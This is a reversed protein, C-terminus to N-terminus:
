RDGGGQLFDDMDIPGIGDSSLNTTARAKPPAAPPAAPQRAFEPSSPAETGGHEDAMDPPRTERPAASGGGLVQRVKPERPKSQKSKRTPTWPRRTNGYPNASASRDGSKPGGFVSLLDIAEPESGSFAPTEADVDAVPTEERPVHRPGSFAPENSYRPEDRETELPPIFEPTVVEEEFGTEASAAPVDLPRRDRSRGDRGGRRRRGGRSRRDLDRDGEDGAAGEPAGASRLPRQVLDTRIVPPVMPARPLGLSEESGERRAVPERVSGSRERDRDRDRDRRDRGRGRDQDRDTERDSSKERDRDSIPPRGTVVVGLPRPEQPVSLSAPKRQEATRRGDAADDSPLPRVVFGDRDSRQGRQPAATDHGRREQDRPPRQGEQRDARAPQPHPRQSRRDMPQDPRNRGGRSRDGSVGAGRGRDRDRGRGGRIDRDRGGREGYPGRDFSRGVDRRGRSHAPIDLKRVVSPAHVAVGAAIALFAGRAVEVGYAGLPLHFAATAATLLGAAAAACGMLLAVPYVERKESRLWQLCLVHLALSGLAATGIVRVLPAFRDLPQDATGAFWQAIMDPKVLAVAGVILDVAGSLVLAVLLLTNM